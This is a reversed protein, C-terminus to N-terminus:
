VATAILSGSRVVELLTPQLDADDRHRWAHWRVGAVGLVFGAVAGLVALLDQDGEFFGVAGSAGCLMAALPLMYVIFSGRLIVEEPISIRVQDNVECATPALKGPLVRIYSRSGDSIQNILGHGCGKQVSCSGCTSQRITEVWLSGTEVAVVRGTETLM